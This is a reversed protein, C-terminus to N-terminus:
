PTRVELLPDHLDTQYLYTYKEVVKDWTGSAIAVCLGVCLVKYFIFKKTYGHAPRENSGFVNLLGLVRNPSTVTVPSSSGNKGKEPNTLPLATYVKNGNCVPLSKYLFFLIGFMLAIGGIIDSYIDVYYGLTNHNSQYQGRRNTHSRYVVGDLDDLWSRFQYLLIGGRRTALSESSVMRASVLSMIVHTISIMNPTIFYFTKSFGTLDDFYEATPGIIYHNYPDTMILKVSLPHFPSWATQPPEQHVLSIRQLAFYLHTDMAVFFALVVAACIIFIFKGNCTINMAFYSIM